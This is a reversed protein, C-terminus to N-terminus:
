KCDRGIVWNSPDDPWVIREIKYVEYWSSVEWPLAEMLAVAVPILGLASVFRM